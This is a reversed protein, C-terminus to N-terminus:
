HNQGYTKVNARFSPSTLKKNKKTHTSVRPELRDHGFVPPIPVWLFPISTKKEPCNFHKPEIKSPLKWVTKNELKSLVSELHRIVSGLCTGYAYSCPMSSSTWFGWAKCRHQQFGIPDHIESQHIKPHFCHFSHQFWYSPTVKFIASAFLCSSWSERLLWQANLTICSVMKQGFINNRRMLEVPFLATFQTSNPEGERGVCLRFSSVVPFANPSGLLSDRQGFKWATFRELIHDILLYWFTSMTLTQKDDPCECTGPIYIEVCIYIYVSMNVGGQHFCALKQWYKHLYWRLCFYIYKGVPCAKECTGAVCIYIYIKVYIYINTYMCYLWYM